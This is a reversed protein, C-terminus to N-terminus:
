ILSSTCLGGKADDLNSNKKFFIKPFSKAKDYVFSLVELGYFYPSFLLNVKAASVIQLGM